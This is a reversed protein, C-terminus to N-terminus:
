HNESIGTVVRNQLDIIEAAKEINRKGEQTIM